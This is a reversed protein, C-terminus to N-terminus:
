RACNREIFGFVDEFWIAAGRYAFSHGDRHSSGFAPYIKTECPKGADKMAASLVRTPSLDFDNEAQIFFIPARANRVARTMATRLEPAEAWTEAAGTADVAACYAEREAGLVTEIGGFSNGAVAIRDARVFSAKRLWALAALQDSLHDGELLRVIEAARAPVGGQRKAAALQDVVYPGAQASLGQGRRYPGFFVWGRAAFRPGIAEFAESSLMGPASGHNYLVAPFPGPGSPKYVVGRLTLAGSPFAVEEAPISPLPDHAAGMAPATKCGICVLVISAFGALVKM